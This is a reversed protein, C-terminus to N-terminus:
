SSFNIKSIGTGMQFPDPIRRCLELQTKCAVCQIPTFDLHEHPTPVTTHTNLTSHALSAPRSGTTEHAQCLFFHIGYSHATQPVAEARPQGCAAQHM